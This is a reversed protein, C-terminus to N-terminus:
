NKHYFNMYPKQNSQNNAVIKQYLYYPPLADNQKATKRFEDYLKEVIEM